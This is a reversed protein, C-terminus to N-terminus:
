LVEEEQPLVQVQVKKGRAPGGQAQGPRAEQQVGDPVARVPVCATLPCPYGHATEESPDPVSRCVRPLM